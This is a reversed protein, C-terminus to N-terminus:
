KSTRSDKTSITGGFLKKFSVSYKTMLPNTRSMTKFPSTQGPMIPNFEILADDSTIMTGDNGYWTGVAAVSQLREGSINKVEGEVIHYGGGDSEYGRSSLLELQEAPEPKSSTSASGVPTSASSATSTPRPSVRSSCWGLFLLGFFILVAWTLCGTKKAEARVAASQSQSVPQGLPVLERGCHKCVKAADQIEEACFPCKKM